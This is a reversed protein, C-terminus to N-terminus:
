KFLIHKINRDFGLNRLSGPLSGSPHVGLPVAQERLGPDLSGFTRFVILIKNKAILTYRNIEDSQQLTNLQDVYESCLTNETKHGM